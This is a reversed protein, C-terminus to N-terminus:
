NTRARPETLSTDMLGLFEQLDIEGDGNADVEKILEEWVSAEHHHYRGLINKLEEASIGGNNDLDFARFALMLRERNLLQKRNLTATVFETYSISGSHDTDIEKMMKDIEDDLDGEAYGFVTFFGEKIEERSLEGNHDLDLSNFLEALEAREDATALQSGIFSIAVRQISSQVNFSKLNQLYSAVLPSPMAVKHASQMWPHALAERASVRDEPNHTLLKNVLDIAEASVVSWQPGVMLIRGTLISVSIDDESTGRFPPYGCLLFYLIVGVSWLDCKDTYQGRIVEPATYYSVPVGGVIEASVRRIATGFDIAKLQSGYASHSLLFNEPKIDRHVIDREHLYLVVALIQSIYGVAAAESFNGDEIIKQFLEGGNCYETIAYYSSDDQFYEYLKVINPHDLERLIEVENFFSQRVSEKKVSFKRIIKAARSEGTERHTVLHVTSFAGSGLKAGLKYVNRLKDRHECVFDSPRILLEM